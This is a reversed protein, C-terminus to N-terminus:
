LITLESQFSMRFYIFGDEGAQFYYPENTIAIDSFEYTDNHSPLEELDDLATAIIHLSAVAAQRRTDLAKIQIFHTLRKDQIGDQYERIVRGGPMQVLSISETSSNADALVRFSLGLTDLYGLLRDEYDLIM